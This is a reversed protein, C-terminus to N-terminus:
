AKALSRQNAGGVAQGRPDYVAADGTEGRLLQLAQRVANLSVDVLGGNVRNKDRCRRAHRTLTQWLSNLEGDQDHAILYAQLGEAGDAYGAQLLLAEREGDLKHLRSLLRNKEEVITELAGSDHAGIATRERDLADELQQSMELQTQMLSALQPLTAHPM